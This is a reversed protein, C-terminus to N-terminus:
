VEGGEKEAEYAEMLEKWDKETASPNEDFYADRAADLNRWEQYSMPPECKRFGDLDKDRNLIVEERKLAAKLYPELVKAM